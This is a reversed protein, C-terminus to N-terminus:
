GKTRGEIVLAELIAPIRVAVEILTDASMAVGAVEPFIGSANLVSFGHIQAWIAAAAFQAQKDDLAPAADSVLEEFIRYGKHGGESVRAFLERGKRWELMLQALGRNGMIFHIYVACAARLRAVASDHTQMEAQAKAILEAQADELLHLLLADKSEFHRYPAALSVGLSASIRALSLKEFGEEDLAQRAATLLAAKLDGHHYNQRRAM